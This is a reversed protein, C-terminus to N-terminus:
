RSPDGLLLPSEQPAPAHQGIDDFHLVFRVPDPGDRLSTITSLMSEIVLSHEYQLEVGDRRGRTDGYVIYSFRTVDASEAEPPIPVLPAEIAVVEQASAEPASPRFTEASSGAPSVLYAAFLLPLHNKIARQGLGM